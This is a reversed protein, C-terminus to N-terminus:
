GQSLPHDFIQLEFAVAILGLAKIDPSNALQAFVKVLGGAPDGFLIQSFIEQVTFVDLFPAAAGAGNGQAADFEEILIGELAGPWRKQEDTGAVFLLKWDDEAAFLDMFNQAVNPPGAM